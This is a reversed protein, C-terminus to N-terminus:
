SRLRLYGGYLAMGLGALFLVPVLYMNVFLPVEFPITLPSHGGAFYYLVGGLLAWLLGRRVYVRGRMAQGLSDSSAAVPPTAERCYPCRDVTARIKKGCFPCSREQM